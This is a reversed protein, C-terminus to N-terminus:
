VKKADNDQEPSSLVDEDILVAFTMEIHEPKSHFWKLARGKLRRIIVIKMDNDSLHYTARLLRLERIWSQYLCEVGDFESLLDSIARINIHGNTGYRENLSATPTPMSTSSLEENRQRELALERTLLDRERRLLELEKDKLFSSQDEAEDSRANGDLMEEADQVTVERDEVSTTLPQTWINPDYHTLREILDAKSGATRLGRERLAAKLEGLLYENPTKVAVSM